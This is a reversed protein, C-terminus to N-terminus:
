VEPNPLSAIITEVHEGYISNMLDADAAERAQAAYSAALVSMGAKQALGAASALTGVLEVRILMDEADLDIAVRRHSLAMEITSHMLTRDNAEWAGEAQQFVLLGARRQLAVNSQDESLLKRVVQASQSLLELKRQYNGEDGALKALWHNLSVRHDALLREPSSTHPSAEFVSSMMEQHETVARGPEPNQEIRRLAHDATTLWALTVPDSLPEQGSKQSLSIWNCLANVEIFGWRSENPVQVLYDRHLEAFLEIMLGQAEDRQAYSDPAWDLNMIRALAQGTRRFAELWTRQTAAQRNEALLQAARASEALKRQSLGTLLGGVALLLLLLAVVSISTSLGPHRRIWRFTRGGIGIARARIPRGELFRELEEALEQASHYRQRPQKELCKLCITELDLAIDARRLRPTVPQDRRIMQLLQLPDNSVFPPLGTLLQYLIAGLSYIDTAPGLETSPGAAQEPSMYSPTGLRGGTQTLRWGDDGLVRSIGFDAIKIELRSDRDAITAAVSASEVLINAPKLDRHIVGQAHASSIAEAIEKVLRAACQIDIPIRKQWNELTQGDVLEMILIPQDDYSMVDFVRVIRPHSLRAMARAENLLRASQSGSQTHNQIMKLAVRRGTVTDVAQYVSGMGGSGILGQIQYKGVTRGTIARDWLSVRCDLQDRSKRGAGLSDSPCDATWGRLTQCDLVSELGDQAHEAALDALRQRCGACSALHAEVLLTESDSLQCEFLAEIQDLREPCPEVVAEIRSIVNM